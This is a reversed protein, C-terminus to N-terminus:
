QNAGLARLTADYLPTSLHFGSRVLKELVGIARGATIARSQTGAILLGLLGIYSRGEAEAVTRAPVEDLVLRDTRPTLCLSAEGMCLGLREWRGRSGRVAVIEIWDGRGKRLVSSERGRFVENSVEKTIAVRGVLDKLLGVEGVADLAILTSADVWTRM